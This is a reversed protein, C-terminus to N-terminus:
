YDLSAVAELLRKRSARTYGATTEPKAHGALAQVARLDGTRDNATSLCQHRLVHPPVPPLGAEEAVLRVWAWITATSVPSGLKRGPFVYVADTHPVAALAEVIAPHMPITRQKSGKGTVTMYGEEVDFASWPLSALEERRLGAYLGIVVALGPRDRRARAAAALHHADEDDLAKSVGQPEPPVRIAGLPPRPHRAIDWYHRLACKLSLRSSHTLPKTDAYAAIQEPLARALSLGREEFWKDASWVIYCYSRVTRPGLGRVILESRLDAATTRWSADRLAEGAKRAARKGRQYCTPCLPAGVGGLRRLRDDQDGCGECVGLELTVRYLEVAPAVQVLAVSVEQDGNMHMAGPTPALALGATGRGRFVETPSSEVLGEAVAWAYFAHLHSLTSIRTADAIPRSLWLTLQATTAETLPCNLFRAVARLARARALRNREGHAAQRPSAMFAEVLEADTRSATTLQVPVLDTSTM